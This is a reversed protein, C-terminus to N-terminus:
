RKKHLEVAHKREDVVHRMRDTSEKTEIKICKIISFRGTFNKKEYQIVAFTGNGIYGVKQGSVLHEDQEIKRLVCDFHSVDEAGPGGIAQTINDINKGCMSCILPPSKKQYRRSRNRRITHKVSNGGNANPHQSNNQEGM